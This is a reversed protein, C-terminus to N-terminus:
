WQILVAMSKKIGIQKRLTLTQAVQVNSVRMREKFVRLIRVELM